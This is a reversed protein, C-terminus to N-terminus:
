KNRYEDVYRKLETYTDESIMEDVFLGVGDNVKQKWKDESEPTLYNVALGQKKMIEIAENEILVMKDYFGELIESTRKIIEEKYEDAIKDWTKSNLILVGYMPMIPLELMNPTLETMGMASAAYPTIYTGEAMGSYLGSLLDSMALPIVNFGIKKWIQIVKEDTNDVAVKLKMLDEPTTVPETTFWKVWGSMTWGMSKFGNENLKREFLPIMKKFVYDFEDDNSVIMPLSLALLDPNINSLGQSTLAAAQLRGIKMKRIIDNEDGVTGGSYINVRIKGNSIKGWESAIEKLTTEWLSGAPAITGIKIVQSFGSLVFITM